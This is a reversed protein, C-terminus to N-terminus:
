CNCGGGTKNNNIKMNRQNNGNEIHERQNAIDHNLHKLFIKNALHEFVANVNVGTLASGTIQHYGHESCFNSVETDDVEAPLDSKNGVVLIIMDDPANERLESVWRQVEKFSRHNDRAFMVVAANANRYYM